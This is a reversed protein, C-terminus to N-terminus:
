PRVDSGPFVERFLAEGLTLRLLARHVEEATYDPHRQRIGARVTQRLARSLEFTMAARGAIGMRRLTQLQVARAEPATDTPHAACMGAM